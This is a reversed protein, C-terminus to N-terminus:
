RGVPLSVLRGEGLYGRILQSDREVVDVNQVPVRMQHGVSDTGAGAARQHDAARRDNFGAPLNYLFGGAQGRGEQFRVDLVHFELM